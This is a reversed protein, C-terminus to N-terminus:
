EHEATPPAFGRRLTNETITRPLVFQLLYDPGGAKSGIGSLKFGGFPQRGVFAGTIPRNLYLNGVMFERCVRNLNAPSRSYMGGTLAYDTGNAIKIAESLNEAKIVALVPGFVEEQALRSSAPVDAFIHPGVFYGRQALSDTNVALLERGDMRGVDIYNQIRRVSQADIVPGVSTAPEDAPGVKLSRTAEVLRALFTDYISALVICRSCASCKQGQYGFASKVVGLVAEDLDADDDVIIANKGGMECIVYKVYGIGKASVEAAKANIALGVARSGTFAILAVDPHEVLAAGVVEGQGPLFHAAGVPLDIERFIEMLKAAVVSSEEAPKLIITNGTALAATTMGTLIALPFNWPAIVATVGRPMYLLRNEEGPVTVEQEQELAVAGRAYYECFDIAECVDADAERWGKGCEYVEWAALEFRRRRMAEAAELLYEARRRAGLGSWEPLARKAAAVAAVAHQKEAAAINGVAQSIDSPNRSVFETRTEMAEGNIVLPYSRGFQSRVQALAAQMAERQRPIAFDTPPENRFAPLADASPAVSMRIPSEVTNEAARDNDQRKAGLGSTPKATQANSRADPHELPNMLLVEPSVHETFSARLFSDNSTNELLRRVLYAMGPILEGYPMYIRLRYGAEVLAQKEADAMGYLMQLEFAERPLELHRAVAMGHALSRINHSGLATRLHQRNLLAFRTLQEFNADSQWKQQFVPIPWGTARAHV